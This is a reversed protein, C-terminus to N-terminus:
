LSQLEAAAQKLADLISTVETEHLVYRLACNRHPGILLVCRIQEESDWLLSVPAAGWKGLRKEAEGALSTSQRVRALGKQLFEITEDIVALSTLQFEVYLERGEVQVSWLSVEGLSEDISVDWGGASGFAVLTSADIPKRSRLM